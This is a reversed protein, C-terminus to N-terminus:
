ISISHERIEFAELYRMEMPIWEKVFRELMAEGNRKLIRNKQEEPEIGYFFRLDYAGKFYPHQSYAGEIINLRRYPVQVMEALSRTGCDFVQYRFGNPDALHALVEDAFREYDVNGGIEALREECRQEPRLFFDDMHFLNCDYIENLIRGLTSKGSGCMGDIAVTVQGNGAQTLARDIALFVPYYHTYCEAVVRYSPHYHSRYWDSHSVPPYGQARYAALYVQADEVKWPLEGSECCALLLELKKEFREKKGIKQDATRVFMQNLTEPLLGADLASLHLRCMGDGIDEYPLEWEDDGSNKEGAVKWTLRETEWEQRIRELSKAPNAVMHGGGFESQFLLKVADELQMQPYRAFQKMLLEKM